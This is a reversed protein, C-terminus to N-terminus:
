RPKHLTGLAVVEKHNEGIHFGLLTDLLLWLILALWRRWRLLDHFIQVLMHNALVKGLLHQRHGDVIMILADMVIQWLQLLLWARAASPASQVAYWPRIQQVDGADTVCQVTTRAVLQRWFWGLHAEAATQSTATKTAAQVVAVSGVGRPAAIM